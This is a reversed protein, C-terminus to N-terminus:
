KAKALFVPRAYIYCSRLDFWVNPAKKNSFRLRYREGQGSSQAKYGINPAQCDTLQKETQLTNNGGDATAKTSLALITVGISGSGGVNAQVGGLQTVKLLEGPCVTEYISDYGNGNDNFIGPTVAAVAGDANSSAFLIQTQTTNLDFDAPPNLLTREARICSNAAITDISWKRASASSIFKGRSYISSHAPPALIDAEEYNVKIIHSPVTAQGLPVGVRVELTEEDIKVWITHQFKWNIQSWTLPIEKSIREPTDGEYIYLGSRHAYVIFKQGVDFARIGCPGSGTWRRRATWNAPNNASPDIEHGSREKLVLQVGKFDVWGMRKEGDNQSVQVFGTSGFITEPDRQPSIYFGSPLADAQWIMRNLTPSFYVNSCGPLPIKDFFSTVNTGTAFLGTLYIDTFNFAGSTTVNDNIVTATIAVGSLSDAAPAYAFPGVSTGGALGFFVIRAATNAPGVPINGVWVQQGNAPVNFSQISGQTMGTIYGNRNQYLVGFFRQGSCINGAGALTATNTAPPAAGGASSNINLSGSPLSIAGAKKFSSAAPVPNGHTVDAEYVNLTTIAAAGQLGSLWQLIGPSLLNVVVRDNAASNNDALFIASATTEGNGNSYTVLIYIDLGAAFSGAGASVSSNVFNLTSPPPAVTGAAPTFEKWTVTNDVVTAGDGTPFAPQTTGSTGAVTCRYVHGNGAAGQPTVTEGVQYATNPAWSSGFLKGSAPDLIGTNLDLAAPLALSNKLDTFAFYGRNLTQTGQLYGPPPTLQASVVPVLIGSGAPNETFMNGAADFVVPVQKDPLVGNGSFKFSNLGTIPQNTKTNMGVACNGVNQNIGDRTRVSILHYQVNRAVAALGLPLNTVDDQEDLSTFREIPHATFGSFNAM